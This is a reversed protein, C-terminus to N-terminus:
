FILGQVPLCHSFAKRPSIFGGVGVGVRQRRRLRLLLLVCWERM